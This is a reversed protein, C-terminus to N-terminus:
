RMKEMKEEPNFGRFGDIGGRLASLACLACVEGRWIRCFQGREDPASMGGPSGLNQIIAM